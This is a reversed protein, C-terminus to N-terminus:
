GKSTVECQLAWVRLMANGAKQVKSSVQRVELGLQQQQLALMVPGLLNSVEGVNNLLPFIRVEGAIRVMEKILWVHEEVGKDGFNVFLHHTILALDFSFDAFPLRQYAEIPLYRKEAKGLEYDEFFLAIGSQREEVLQSLSAGEKKWNYKDPDAKIQELTADFNRQTEQKLETKDLQYLPDISVVTRALAHMEANFGTVGAGYEVIKKKSLLADDLDFMAQYDKLCHGWLVFKNLM